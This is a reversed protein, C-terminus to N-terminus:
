TPIPREIRDCCDAALAEATLDGTSLRSQLDRISADVPM